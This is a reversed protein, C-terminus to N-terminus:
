GSAEGRLKKGHCEGFPSGSGCFCPDSLRWLRTHVLFDSHDEALDYEAEPAAVIRKMRDMFERQQDETMELLHIERPSWGPWCHKWVIYILSDEDIPQSGYKRVRDKIGDLGLNQWREHQKKLDRKLEDGDIFVQEEQLFHPVLTKHLKDRSSFAACFPLYYLYQLDIFNTVRTGILQAGLATCFVYLVRICYYAYPAFEQLARVGTNHWRAGVRAALRGPLNVMTMALRLLDDAHPEIKLLADVYRILQDMNKIKQDPQLTKGIGAKLGELTAGSISDRWADALREDEQTFKGQRWREIAREEETVDQIYGTTGDPDRVTRGQNIIPRCTMSIDHGLLNAALVTEFPCTVVSSSPILKDALVRVEDRASRDAMPKKLDALIEHAAVPAVVFNFHRRLVVLEDASLAQLSSKDLIIAPGM